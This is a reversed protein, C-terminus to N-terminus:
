LRGPGDVRVKYFRVTVPVPVPKAPGTVGDTTIGGGIDAAGNDLPAAPYDAAPGVRVLTPVTAMEPSVQLASAGVFMYRPRPKWLLSRVREPLGPELGEVAALIAENAGFEPVRARGGPEVRVTAVPELPGCRNEARALVQWTESAYQERYRCLIELTARPSETPKHEKRARLIREPARRPDALADVNIDDLAPTYGLYHQMTPLPRWRLEPHGWVVATEFPAVHVTRGQLLRLAEPEVAEVERVYAQRGPIGTDLERMLTALARYGEWSDRTSHLDAFKVGSVAGFAAIALAAGAATFAVGLRRTREAGRPPGAALLAPVAVAFFALVHHVVEHRVFGQKFWSYEFLAIAAILASGRWWGMTRASWVALVAVATTVLGAWMYDSARQAGEELSMAEPFGKVVEYSSKFYPALAGLDQGLLIWLAVLAAGFTGALLAASALRRGRPAGGVVGCAALLVILLGSNLKILAHAAAVVGLGAILWWWRRSSGLMPYHLMAAAALLMASAAAVQVNEEPSVLRFADLTFVALLVAPLLTLTRRATAVIALAAAFYSMVVYFVAQTFLGADAFRPLTLYGLPGYTFVIETGYHFGRASALYLGSIWSEDLKVGPAVTFIFPYVSVTIVAAWLWSSTAIAAAPRAFSRWRDVADGPLTEVFLAVAAAVVLGAGLLTLHGGVAPGGFVLIRLTGAAVIVGAAGGALAGARRGAAAAALIGVGLALQLIDTREYVELANLDGTGDRGWPAWLAVLVLAGGVAMVIRATLARPVDRWRGPLTGVVRVAGAAVVILAALLAVRAGRAPASLVLLAIVDVAALAGAGAALVAGRRSAGLGVSILVLGALVTQVAAAFTYAQWATLPEAPVSGRDFGWTMWLSGLLILAGAALM